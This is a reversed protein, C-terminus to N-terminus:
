EKSLAHETHECAPLPRCPPVYRGAKIAAGVIDMAEQSSRGIVWYRGRNFADYRAQLSVQLPGEFQRYSWFSYLASLFFLACVAPTKFLASKQQVLMALSSMLVVSFFSYRNNLTLIAEPDAVAARGVAVALITAVPFWCCLMLRVDDDRYFRWTFVSLVLLQVAGFGYAIWSNSDFLAGGLVLVVFSVYRPLLELLPAGVLYAPNWNLVESVQGESYAAEAPVYGIRWILLVTVAALLWLAPYLLPRTRTILAQHLLSALGVAWAIQGSALTFSALSCFAVALGFRGPSVRHLAFVAAFAYFITYYYAFAVQGWLVIRWARLHLLLLAAVLLYIWCLREERVSLYFLFLILALAINGLIALTHFNVEGQLQYALYAQMRSAGTRHENYQSNLEGIAEGLSGAADMNHVVLLIDHIDDHYPVNIAYRSVFWFYHLVVAAFLLLPLWQVFLRNKM